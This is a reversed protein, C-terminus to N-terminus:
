EVHETEKQLSEPRAVGPPQTMADWTRVYAIGKEYRTVIVEEGRGIQKGDSRAPVPKRGGDRVYIVEGIGDPRITCSVRGLVGVMDYDAVNLPRERSDLFRLFVALLWAGLLGVVLALSLDIWLGLGSHRTLLYGIGGFWALFIAACSPNIMEAMWSLGNGIHGHGVHGHTASSGTHGAHLGSLLLAALSWLVGVAFCFLYVDSWNM